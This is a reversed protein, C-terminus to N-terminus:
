IKHDGCRTIFGGRERRKDVEKYETNGSAGVGVWKWASNNVFDDFSWLRPALQQVPQCWVYTHALIPRPLTSPSHTHPVAAPISQNQHAGPPHPALTSYPSIPHVPVLDRTYDGEFVDLLQVDSESLGTVLSGRVSKDEPSLERNFLSKSKSYPIVAPYDAHKIQHRTHDLLIASCIKLHTGDNGIVRKLIEPHMLTGYFFAAYPRDPNM